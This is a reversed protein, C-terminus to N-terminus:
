SHEQGLTTPEIRRRWATTMPFLLLAFLLLHGTSPEPVAAFQLRLESGYIGSPTFDYFTSVGDNSPILDDTQFRLSTFPTGGDTAYDLSVIYTLDISELTFTDSTVPFSTGTIVYNPNAFDADSVTGSNQVNHYISIPGISPNSSYNRIGSFFLVLTASQLETGTPIAPLSLFLFARMSGAGTSTEGVAFGGTLYDPTSDGNEDHLTVANSTPVTLTQGNACALTLLLLISIYYKM